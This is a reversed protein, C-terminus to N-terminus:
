RRLVHELADDVVCGETAVRCSVRSSPARRDHRGIDREIRVQLFRGDKDNVFVEAEGQETRRM